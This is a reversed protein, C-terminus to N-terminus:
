IVSETFQRKFQHFIPVIDANSQGNVHMQEAIGIM